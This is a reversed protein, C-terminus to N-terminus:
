VKKKNSLVFVEVGKLAQHYFTASPCADIFIQFGQSIMKSDVEAKLTFSYTNHM